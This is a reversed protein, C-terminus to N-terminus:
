SPIKDEDNYITEWFLSRKLFVYPCRRVQAPKKLEEAILEGSRIRFGHYIFVAGNGDEGGYPAGVAIDIMSFSFPKAKM